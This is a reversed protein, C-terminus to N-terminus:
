NARPSQFAIKRTHSMPVQKTRRKVHFHHSWLTQAKWHSREFSSSGNAGVKSSFACQLTKQSMFIQLIELIMGKTCDYDSAATTKSVNVTRFVVLNTANRFIQSPSLCTTFSDTSTCHASSQEQDKVPKIKNSQLTNPKKITYCHVKRQQYGSLKKRLSSTCQTHTKNQDTGYKLYKKM